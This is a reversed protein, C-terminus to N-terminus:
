DLSKWVCIKMSSGACFSVQSQLLFFDENRRESEQQKKCLLGDMFNLETELQSIRSQKENVERRLIDADKLKERMKVIEIEQICRILPFWM